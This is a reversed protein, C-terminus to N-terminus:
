ISATASVKQIHLEHKGGGIKLGARARLGDVILDQFSFEIAKPYRKEVMQWKVPPQAYLRVTRQYHVVDEEDDVIIDYDPDFPDLPREQPPPQPGPPPQISEHPNELGQEQGM